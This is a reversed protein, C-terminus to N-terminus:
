DAPADSLDLRRKVRTLDAEIRSLRADQATLLQLVASQTGSIEGLRAEITDLREDIRRLMRLTLNEPEDTMGASYRLERSTQSDKADASPWM